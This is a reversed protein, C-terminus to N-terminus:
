NSLYGIEHNLGWGPYVKNFDGLMTGVTGAQIGTHDGAAYMAGYPQMLRINERILKPDHLESSSDLGYFDFITKMWVDYGTVTDMPNNGLTIFQKYAESATGTFIVHDSVVEVVDILERDLVNPHAVKDEDLRQKYTSLFAKFQEPDTTKTMFPIKTLGEFRILPAKGQEDATYPNVIYVTGGKTVDHAYYSNKAFEPVTITNKGPRLKVSSAWVNWAAEQQSFVVSPLKDSSEVDVYVNITDGPMAVLGTPQNNVGFNIRLNQQAHKRMDGRQEAQIVTGEVQVEGTVLHGASYANPFSCSYHHL